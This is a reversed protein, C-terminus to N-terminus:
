LHSFRKNVRFNKGIIELIYNGKALGSAPLVYEPFLPNIMIKVSTNVKGTADIIRANVIEREIGTVTFNLRNLVPNPFINLLPRTSGDYRFLIISSYSINGTISTVMLRYYVNRLEVDEFFQYIKARNNLKISLNTFQVGNYSRQLVVKVPLGPDNVEGVFKRKGDDYGRFSVILSQPLISSCVPSSDRLAPLTFLTRVAGPAGSSAGNSLNGCAVAVGNAGATIFASINVPVSTTALWVVGGGGGGGPGTCGNGDAGTNSGRAGKSEISLSGVIDSSNLIIVGGGGGGGGGDGDADSPHTSLSVNNPAAGNATIKQNNSMIVRSKVYVIGGGHGGPTGVNDNGHGAGGGGGAFIKYNAPSYGRGSLEASELGPNPINCSAFKTSGAIGGAGFNGGGGGGHNANNGGGGGNAQRGRAHEKGVLYTAIGEGKKGAHKYGNATAALPLFYDNCTFFFPSFDTNSCAGTYNVFGGGRFGSSDAYLISNLFITDTAEMALVGGIGTAPDWSKARVTDSVILNSARAPFIVLQVFGSPDYHNQLKRELIISDSQQGCIIGTEFNGAERTNIIYGFASTPSSDIVAGKMQILMVARGIYQVMNSGDALRVIGRASDTLTVKRYENVIGSLQAFVNVNLFLLFLFFILPNFRKM